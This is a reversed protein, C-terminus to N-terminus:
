DGVGLAGSFTAFHRSPTSVTGVPRPCHVLPGCCAPFDEPLRLLIGAGPLASSPLVKVDRLSYPVQPPPPPRPSIPFLGHLPSPAPTLAIPPPHVSVEMYKKYTKIHIKECSCLSKFSFLRNYYDLFLFCLLPWLSRPLLFPYSPLSIFFM